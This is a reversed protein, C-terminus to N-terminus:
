KTKDFSQIIFEKAHEGLARVADEKSLADSAAAFTVTQLGPKAGKAFGVEAVGPLTKLAATVTAKCEQCVIGTVTASYKTRATDAAHLPLNFAILFLLLLHRM